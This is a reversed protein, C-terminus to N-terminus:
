QLSSPQQQHKIGSLTIFNYLEKSKELLKLLIDVKDILSELFILHEHINRIVMLYICSM